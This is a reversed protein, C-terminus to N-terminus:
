ESVSVHLLQAEHTTQTTLLKSLKLCRNLRSIYVCTFLNIFVTVCCSPCSIHKNILEWLDTRGRGESRSLKVEQNRLHAELHKLTYM